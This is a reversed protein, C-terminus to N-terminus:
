CIFQSFSTILSHFLDVILLFSVFEDFCGFIAPCRFLRDSMTIMIGSITFLTQCISWRFLTFPGPKPLSFWINRAFSLHPNEWIDLFMLHFSNGTWVLLSDSMFTYPFTHTCEYSAVYNFYFSHLPFNLIFYPFYIIMTPYLSHSNFYPCFNVLTFLFHLMSAIFKGCIVIFTLVWTLTCPPVKVCEFSCIGEM